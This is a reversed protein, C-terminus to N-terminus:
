LLTPCFPPQRYGREKWQSTRMSEQGKCIPAFTRRSTWDNAKPKFQEWGGNKGPRRVKLRLFIM